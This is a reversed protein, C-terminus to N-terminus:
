PDLHDTRQRLQASAAEANDQAFATGIFAAVVRRGQKGAHALVTRMFHVRCRQWTANLAKAIAAKLGEHADSVVLKVGRLGRRALKRLFDTWFTEAESAGIAWGLVRASAMTM